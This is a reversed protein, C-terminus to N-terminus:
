PFLWVILPYCCQSIKNTNEFMIINGVVARVPLSIQNRGDGSKVFVLNEGITIFYEHGYVDYPITFERRYGDMSEHALDIESQVTLAIEKIKMNSRENLKDSMNSEILIFFIVFSIMLFGILMVFELSSQARKM